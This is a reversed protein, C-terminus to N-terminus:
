LMTTIANVDTEYIWIHQIHPPLHPLSTHSFPHRDILQTTEQTTLPLIIDINDHEHPTSYQDGHTNSIPDFLRSDEFGRIARISSQPAPREPHAEHFEAILDDAHSVNVTPEWTNEETPYGKWKILYELRNRRRRSDLIKEVEYEVEGEIEIPPPPPPKQQNPFSAPYFPTLYSENIVPHISRWQTPLNLKYASRGVKEVIEFPGLRKDGLKRSPRDTRINTADLYVQDGPEYEMTDRARSDHAEKSRKAAEKLALQADERTKGLDEIFEEVAENRIDKKM